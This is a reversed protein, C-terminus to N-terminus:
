GENTTKVTFTKDVVQGVEGLSGIKEGNFTIDIGGANGAKM